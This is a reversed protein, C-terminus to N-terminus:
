AKTEEDPFIFLWLAQAAPSNHPNFSTFHKARHHASLQRETFTEPKSWNRLRLVIAM